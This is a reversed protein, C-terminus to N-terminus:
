YSKVFGVWASCVYLKWKELVIQIETRNDRDSLHVRFDLLHPVSAWHACCLTPQLSYHGPSPICWPPDRQQTHPASSQSSWPTLCLPASRTLHRPLSRHRTFDIPATQTLVMPALLFSLSNKSVFNLKSILINHLLTEATYNRFHEWFWTCLLCIDLRILFIHIPDPDPGSTWFNFFNKSYTSHPWSLCTGM